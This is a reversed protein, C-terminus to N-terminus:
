DEGLGPALHHLDFLRADLRYEVWALIIGAAILVAPVALIWATFLDTAILVVIAAILVLLGAVLVIRYAVAVFRVWFALRQEQKSPDEASLNEQETM